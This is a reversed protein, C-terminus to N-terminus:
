YSSNTYYYDYYYYNNSGKQKVYIDILGYVDDLNVTTESSDTSIMKILKDNKFIYINKTTELVSSVNIKIDEGQNYKVKDTSIM